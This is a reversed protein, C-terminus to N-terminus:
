NLGQRSAAQQTEGGSGYGLIKAGQAFIAFITIKQEDQFQILL